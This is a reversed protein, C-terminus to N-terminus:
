TFFNKLSKKIEMEKNKKIKFLQLEMAMSAKFYETLM